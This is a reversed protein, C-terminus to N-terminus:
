VSKDFCRKLCNALKVFDDGTDSHEKFTQTSRRVVNLNNVYHRQVTRLPKCEFLFLSQRKKQDRTYVSFDCIKGFSSMLAEMRDTSDQINGSANFTGYRLKLLM